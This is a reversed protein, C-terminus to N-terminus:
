ELEETEILELAAEVVQPSFQTGKNDKLEQIAVEKALKSRYVRDSRMTNWADALAIIQSVFPIEEGALGEPYGLGDWREHHYKVHNAIESLEKANNLVQYGWVSHQKIKEYEKETLKDPKNLIEEDVLIKGIDHVLGAWYINEQEDTEIGMKQALKLSIDAVQESHGKTYKDHLELINIIVFIIEQQFKDQLNSYHKMTLIATSIDSFSKMVELTENGFSKNSEQAIDLIIRGKLKDGLKLKIIISEKASKCNQTFTKIEQQNCSNKNLFGGKLKEVKKKDDLSSFCDNALKFDVIKENHGIVSVCSWQKDKLLFISGSDSEDVLDFSYKLLKELFEQYEENFVSNILREPLSIVEKFKKNLKEIEQYSSDLEENVAKVEEFNASLESVLNQYTALLINVEQIETRELKDEIQLNGDLNFEKMSEILRSFPALINEYLRKNFYIILSGLIIMFGLFFAIIIWELIQLFSLDITLKLNYGEAIFGEEDYGINWNIYIAKKYRSLKKTTYNQASDQQALEKFKERDAEAIEEEGQIPNYLGDYFNVDTVFNYQESIDFVKEEIRSMTRQDFPIGLEFIYDDELKLYAFKLPKDSGIELALRQVIIEGKDLSELKDWLEYESLDLGLDNSYNTAEIVGDPNILYYNIDSKDLDGPLRSNLLVEDLLERYKKEDVTGNEILEDTEQDMKYLLETLLDNYEEELLGIFFDFDDLNSSINEIIINIGETFAINSIYNQLPLFLVVIAVIIIILYKILRSSIIKKLKTGKNKNGM